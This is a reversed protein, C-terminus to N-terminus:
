NPPTWLAAHSIGASDTYNVVIQGHNNIKDASGSGGTGIDCFRRGIGPLLICPKTPYRDLDSYWGVIQGFDNIGMVCSLENIWVITDAVTDWLWTYCDGNFWYSGVIQDKNNIDSCGKAGSMTAEPTWFITPNFTRDDLFGMIHGKNNIRFAGTMGSIIQYDGHLPLLYAGVSWSFGSPKIRYGVIQNNDNIDFGESDSGGMTGLDSIGQDAKWLFAHAGWTAESTGVVYGNNNIGNAQSNKGGLTGIDRMGLKASWIFAHNNGNRDKSYGVIDGFDNIDRAVTYNGGLHGIDVVEGPAAAYLEQYWADIQEFTQYNKKVWDHNYPVEQSKWDACEGTLNFGSSFAEAMGDHPQQMLYSFFWTWYVSGGRAEVGVIARYHCNNKGPRANLDNLFPNLPWHILNMYEPEYGLGYVANSLITALFSETTGDHPTSMTVLMNVKNAADYLEIAGRAVLGGMSHAYIDITGAKVKSKIKAALTEGLKRIGWGEIYEVAYIADYRYGNWLHSALPKMDERSGFDIGHVMLAVRKLELEKWNGSDEVWNAGDFRYTTMPPDGIFYRIAYKYVAIKRITQDGSRIRLGNVAGPAPMAIDGSIKCGSVTSSVAIWLGDQEYGIYAKEDEGLTIPASVTVTAGDTFATGTLSINMPHGVLVASPNAPPVPVRDLVSTTVIGSGNLAGAPIVVTPADAYFAPPAITGGSTTMSTNKSSLVKPESTAAGDGQAGFSRDIMIYDFLNVQGDGDLDAMKNATNFNTDLVVYDFLDVSNGGDADGNALATSVSNAGDVNIGTIVRNLWHGGTLSLDYVGPQLEDLLASGGSNLALAGTYLRPGALSYNLAMGSMPGIYGAGPDLTVGLSKLGDVVFDMTSTITGSPTIVAIKGKTAGIPVTAIITTDRELSFVMALGNLKVTTALTFGSGTIVVDQGIMGSVPTFSTIAPLDRTFVAISTATGFPTKVVVRGTTSADPVTATISTDSGVTFIAETCNFLVSTVGTFETGTITVLDGANGHIPSFSTITPVDTTFVEASMTTGSPTKVAIKGTTASAPVTATISTDSDVNFSAETGNFQVSTAGTFATGTITVAVGANGSTPSFTSLTPAAAVVPLAMAILLLMSLCASSMLAIFRSM